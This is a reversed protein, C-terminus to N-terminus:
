RRMTSAAPSSGAKGVNDAHDKRGSLCVEITVGWLISSQQMQIYALPERGSLSLAVPHTVRGSWSPERRTPCNCPLRGEPRSKQKTACGPTSGTAMPTHSRPLWGSEVACHHPREGRIRVSVPGPKFRVGRGTPSSLSQLDGPSDFGSGRIVFCVNQGQVLPGSISQHRGRPDFWFRCPKM